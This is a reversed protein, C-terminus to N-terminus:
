ITEGRIIKGPHDIFLRRGESEGFEKIIKRFAASLLPPRFRADHADSAVVHVFHKRIMKLACSGVDGRDLISMATVQFLAGCLALRKMISLNRSIPINREPHSFIPTVLTTRLEKVINELVEVPPIVYPPLELLLFNRNNILPLEGNEIRRRFDRGIRIEAGIYLEIGQAAHRIEALAKEIIEKTNNCSGDMMHPTAVIGSIGDRRALALMKEAEQRDSPGDDLGPLIHCHIDIFNNLATGHSGYTTACERNPRRNRSRRRPYLM